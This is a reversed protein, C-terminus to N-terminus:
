CENIDTNHNQVVELLKPLSSSVQLEYRWSWVHGHKPITEDTCWSNRPALHCQGGYKRCHWKLTPICISPLLPSHTGVKHCDKDRQLHSDITLPVTITNDILCFRSGRGPHPSPGTLIKWSLHPGMRSTPPATGQAPGQVSHFSLLHQVSEASVRAERGGAPTIHGTAQREQARVECWPPSCVM